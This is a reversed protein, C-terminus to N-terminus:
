LTNKVYLINEMVERYNNVCMDMDFQAFLIKTNKRYSDLLMSDQVILLMKEALTDVNVEGQSTLPFIMGACDKKHILMNKTEGTDTAIVPIGYALYEVISNPLSESYSPLLGVHFLQIWEGPYLSSGVFHIYSYMSYRNKLLQAYDSDGVLILHINKGSTHNLIITAQITEEWGKEKMPRSVIGFIFDDGKIALEERKRAPIEVPKYGNYIKLFKDRDIRINMTDFIDINHQTLYIIRDTADLVKGVLMSFERDMDPHLYFLPYCGHLTIIWKIHSLGDLAKYTLKDSFWIHSSVLDIKFRIIYSRLEEACGKSKFIKICPNITKIIEQPNKNTNVCYVYVSYFESLANALRIAVIQAGGIAFEHVVVLIRKKSHNQKLIKKVISLCGRFFLQILHM